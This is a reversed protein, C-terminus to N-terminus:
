RILDAYQSLEFRFDRLRIGFAEEVPRIDCVSDEQSMQVQGVNFRLSLPLLPTRMLTRALLRALPVPQGLMPKFRCAGPILERCAAYLEKWTFTQPGGLEYVRRFTEPKDISAVFCHAVDKVSVPQVRNEGSGFYPIVPVFQPIVGFHWVPRFTVFTKMLRMFEGDPGHIISPRFITWAVGSNRVMEEAQWKTRHYESVADARAGLASMFLFRAHGANVAANLTHRTGEVHIRQFTQKRLIRDFIIGVLHITARSLGAARRLADADHLDGQVLTMQSPMVDPVARHMRVPDRVLAVVGYGRAILERVVYRGVFGSAGTVLVTDPRPFSSM